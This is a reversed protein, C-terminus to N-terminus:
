NTCPHVGNGAQESPYIFNWQKRIGDLIEVIALSEELPMTGCETQGKDICDMVQLAEYEYGNYSNLPFEFQEPKRGERYLTFATPKYWPEHVVIKGSSGYVVADKVDYSIMSASVAAIQGGGFRLICSSQYDAGTEGFSALGTVEEPPGFLNYAWSIGYSGLDLLVGAGLRVDFFRNTPDAPVTAIFPAILGRPEGLAGDALLERVRIHVPFFRTWMAEMLFLRGTRARSIVNRAEDANMTLVKECLVHKGGTLCMAIDRHHFVGPTGIYVIDVDPDAVAQEYGACVRPIGYKEAFRAGSERRRSGVVLLEAREPLNKLAYAFRNAIKGTGLIAWRIRKEV